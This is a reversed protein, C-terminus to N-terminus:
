KVLDEALRNAWADVSEEQKRSLAARAIKEKRRRLRRGFAESRAKHEPDKEDVLDSIGRLAEMLGAVGKSESEFALDPHLSCTGLYRGDELKETGFSPRDERLAIEHRVLQDDTMVSRGTEVFEGAYEEIHAVSPNKKQRLLADCKSCILDCHSTERVETEQDCLDCVKDWNKM